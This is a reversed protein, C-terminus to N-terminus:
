VYQIAIITIGVVAFVTAATAAYSVMRRWFLM